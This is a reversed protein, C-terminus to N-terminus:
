TSGGSTRGGEAMAVDAAARALWFRYQFETQFRIDRNLDGLLAAMRNIKSTLNFSSCCVQLDM